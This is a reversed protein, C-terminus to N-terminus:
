YVGLWAMADYISYSAALLGRSTRNPSKPTVTLVQVPDPPLLEPKVQVAPLKVSKETSKRLKKSAVSAQQRRTDGAGVKTQVNDTTAGVRGVNM